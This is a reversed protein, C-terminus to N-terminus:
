EEIFYLTIWTQTVVTAAIPLAIAAMGLTLSMMSTLILFNLGQKLKSSSEIRM